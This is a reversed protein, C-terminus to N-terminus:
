SDFLETTLVRGWLLLFCTNKALAQWMGVVQDGCDIAATLIRLRGNEIGFGHAAEPPDKNETGATIHSGAKKRAEGIGAPRNVSERPVL